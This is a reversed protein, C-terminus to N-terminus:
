QIKLKRKEKLPMSEALVFTKGTHTFYWEALYSSIERYHQPYNKSTWDDMKWIIQKLDEQYVNLNVMEENKILKGVDLHFPHDDVFGTNHMVGHDKDYLGKKYEQVYMSLVESFSKKAAEVNDQNLYDGIVARLMEGKRQLLFVVDDLNIKRSIGIKDIVTVHQNLFSTPSLHIYILGAGEKNEKYALEYGIFTSYLKRKKREEVNKKYNKLVSISPILNTLWNPRLHKFKFFKIVYKDDDSVFAYCQAGKGIYHFEQDLIATLKKSEQETPKPSILNLPEQKMDYSINSLRFDDTLNYYLRAGAFLFTSISFLYILIKTKRKM